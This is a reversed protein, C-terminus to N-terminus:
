SMPLLVKPDQLSSSKFFRDHAYRMNNLKLELILAFSCEGPKKIGYRM